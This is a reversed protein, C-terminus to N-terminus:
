KDFTAREFIFHKAAAEAALSRVFRRDPRAALLGMTQGFSEFSDIPSPSQTSEGKHKECISEACM